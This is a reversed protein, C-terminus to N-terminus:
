IIILTREKKVHRLTSMHLQAYLVANCIFSLVLPM